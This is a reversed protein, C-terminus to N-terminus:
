SVNPFRTSRDLCVYNPLDLPSFVAGALVIALLNPDLKTTSVCIGSSLSVQLSEALSELMSQVHLEMM